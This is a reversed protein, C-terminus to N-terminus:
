QPTWVVCWDWTWSNAPLVSVIGACAGVMHVLM